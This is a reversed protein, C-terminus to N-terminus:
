KSRRGAAPQYNTPNDKGSSNDTEGVWWFTKKWDTKPNEMTKMFTIWPSRKVDTAFTYDVATYVKQKEEGGLDVHFISSEPEKIKYRWIDYVNIPYDEYSKRTRMYFFSRDQGQLCVGFQMIFHAQEPKDVVTWYGIRKLHYKIREAGWQDWEETSNAAVYVCNGKDILLGQFQSLDVVPFNSEEPTEAPTSAPAPAQAPADAANFMEKEGNQYNISMVNSISVSRIPGDQNDFNKYEIETESIKLVKAIIASGDKKVIIDQAMSIGACVFSLFLLVLKKM